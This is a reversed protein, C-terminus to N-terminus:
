RLTRRVDRGTLSRIVTAGTFQAIGYGHWLEIASKNTGKYRDAIEPFLTLDSQIVQLESHQEIDLCMDLAKSLNHGINSKSENETLGAKSALFGKLFMETAMRSCEMAKSNPISELLLTVTANLQPHGSRFCDQGFANPSTGNWLGEIGFAYDICDAWVAAYQVFEQKNKTLRSKISDPMTKLSNSADLRVRGAVVPIVIPWFCSDYYLTGEYMPGFYQSGAKTNKEFWDFIKKVDKDDLSASVRAYRSWEFWAEWPRQKHSVDRRSLEANVHELWDDTPEDSESKTM